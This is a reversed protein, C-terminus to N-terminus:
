SVTERRLSAMEAARQNDRVALRQRRREQWEVREVRGNTFADHLEQVDEIIEDRTHGWAELRLAEFTSPESLGILRCLTKLEM